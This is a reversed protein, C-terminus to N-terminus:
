FVILREKLRKKRRATKPMKGLPGHIHATFQATLLAGDSGNWMEKGAQTRLVPSALETGDPSPSIM